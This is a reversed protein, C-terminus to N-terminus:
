NLNCLGGVALEADAVDSSLVALQWAAAAVEPLCAAIDAQSGGGPTAFLEQQRATLV